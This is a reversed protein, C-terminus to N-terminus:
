LKVAKLSLDLSKVSHTLAGVSVYDVGCDAYDRINDITIGGSAETIYRGEIMNVAQRLDDFNFNDLMIRNVNGTQLVQELEDLNRVEIEIALKRGTEKLYNNANEIARRIGGSYDVHNDKILIMDYLGIRHNVGGGIRVAWKELYRLGPTTKRTDLVKTNTGKLLRVINNTTTAIGSMRQMCNLVLREAKLISQADGEVELAIDKPKVEAGDNLFVTVKLNPDVVSFIELALEVGALIGTDKVLLKAKGQTGAEITALSTHDGDGVDEALSATIFQHILEKDM